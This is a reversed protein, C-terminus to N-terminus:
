YAPVKSQSDAANPHLVLFTDNIRMSAMGNTSRRSRAIFNEPMEGHLRNPTGGERKFRDIGQVQMMQPNM